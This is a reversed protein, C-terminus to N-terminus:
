VVSKRDVLDRDVGSGTDIVDGVAAYGYKLPYQLPRQLEPIIEDAATDAPFQGRYILMETGHSIASFRTQILVQGGAPEPLDEEAIDIEYPAKFIISQRNM